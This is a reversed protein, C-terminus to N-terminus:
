YGYRKGKQLTILNELYNYCETYTGMFMMFGNYDRVSYQTVQTGVEGNYCPMITYNSNTGSYYNAQEFQETTM